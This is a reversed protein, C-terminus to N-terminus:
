GGELTLIQRSRFLPKGSVWTSPGKSTIAQLDLSFVSEQLVDRSGQSTHCVYARVGNAHVFGQLALLLEQLRQNIVFPRTQSNPEVRQLM